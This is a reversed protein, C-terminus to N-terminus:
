IRTSTEPPSGEEGPPRMAQDIRALIAAEQGDICKAYVRLLVETSHGAWEAVQPAPVGSNLEGVGRGNQHGAMLNSAPRTKVPRDLCAKFCEVYGGLESEDEAIRCVVRVEGARGPGRV